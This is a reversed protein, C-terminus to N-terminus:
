VDNGAKCEREFIETTLRALYQRYRAVRFRRSPTVSSKRRFVSTSASPPKLAVAASELIINQLTINYAIPFFIIYQDMIQGLLVCEFVGLQFRVFEEAVM